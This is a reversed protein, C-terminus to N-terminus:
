LELNLNYDTLIKRIIRRVAEAIEMEQESANDNFSIISVQHKTTKRLEQDLEWMANKWKYGDLSLQIEEQEENGDFELTVKM